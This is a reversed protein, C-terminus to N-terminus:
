RGIIQKYDNDLLSNIQHTDLITAYDKYSYKKVSWNIKDNTARIVELKLAVQNPQGFQDVFKTAYSSVSLKKVSAINFVRGALDAFNEYSTKIIFVGDTSSIVYNITALGSDDLTLTKKLSNSGIVDDYAKQLQNIPIAAEQAAQSAQQKAEQANKLAQDPNTSTTPKHYDSASKPILAIILVLLFLLLVVAGSLFFLRRTKLSKAQEPTLNPDVKGLVFNNLKAPLM